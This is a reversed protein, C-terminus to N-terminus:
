KLGLFFFDGWIIHTNNWFMSDFYSRSLPHFTTMKNRQFFHTHMKWTLQDHLFVNATKEFIVWKRSWGGTFTSYRQNKTRLNSISVSSPPSLDRSCQTVGQVRMLCGCLDWVEDVEVPAWRSVAAWAFIYNLIKQECTFIGIRLGSPTRKKGSKQKPKQTQTKM